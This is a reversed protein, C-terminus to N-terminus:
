LKSNQLGAVIAGLSPQSTLGSMSDVAADVVDAGAWAAALMSAVGAGATDHTHLHIPLDPYKDRIATVLLKAAEPKLLGAMDKIGLVHTGAKVLQDTLDLYYKLTYKQENPDAVDGTYCFSGEVIGGAKGAADMGVILNPMYNLSDFVRFVDVGAQFALECFKYVVNDPYNKYGVASAGRLLMQFPINPILRRLEELREWPCEHLFRMAVDFTAGGWNELSFFQPMEHAVFPAIRALDYTRVRTALLSQHADRMTTDMILLQPHARVAKAFGTAGSEKFVDRWGRPLSADHPVSPVAAENESPKLDTALLTSPGNILVNGIYNLLKQARRQPPPLNFLEPHEDIFYTDAAGSLFTEHKLVNVLFPVNTKVGHVQFENLSRLM